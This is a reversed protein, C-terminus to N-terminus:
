FPFVIDWLQTGWRPQQLDSLTGRGGYAVRMEAIKEHSVSNAYDIDEPRIIGTVALERMEFNVKMEQRGFIVLNGNPLVQTIVAALTLNIEESRDLSGDGKTKHANGFSMVSAANLGEPLYNTFEAELGLLNTVDTDETDARERETTNSISASDDLALALTLIDGVEKARQDKFFARAGARWLSNPNSTALKPAPMPMSVPQYDRRATPNQIESLEPGDGITSIRSITNCATASAAVTAIVLAKLATRQISKKM